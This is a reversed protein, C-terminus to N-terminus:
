QVSIVLVLYLKMVVSNRYVSFILFCFRVSFVQTISHKKQESHKFNNSSKSNDLM